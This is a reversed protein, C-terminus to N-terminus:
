YSVEFFNIKLVAKDYLSYRYKLIPLIPIIICHKFLLVARNYIYLLVTSKSFSTFISLIKDKKTKEKYIFLIKNMTHASYSKHATCHTDPKQFRATSKLSNINNKYNTNFFSLSNGLGGNYNTNDFKYKNEKKLVDLNFISISSKISSGHFIIKNTNIIM